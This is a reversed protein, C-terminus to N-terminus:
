LPTAPGGKGRPSYGQLKPNHAHSQRHQRMLGLIAQWMDPGALNEKRECRWIWVGSGALDQIGVSFGLGAHRAGVVARRGNASTVRTAHGESNRSLVLMYEQAWFWQVFISCESAAPDKGSLIVVARLAGLEPRRTRPAATKYFIVGHHPPPSPSTRFNAFAAPDYFRMRCLHGM